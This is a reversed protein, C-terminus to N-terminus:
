YLRNAKREQKPEPNLARHASGTRLEPLGPRHSRTQQAYITPVMGGLSIHPRCTNYDVRWAEILNRAESLSSFLPENLCVGRPLISM